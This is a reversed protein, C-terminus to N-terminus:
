ADEGDSTLVHVVHKATDLSKRVMTQAEASFMPFTILDITQQHSEVSRQWWPVHDPTFVINKCPVCTDVGVKWSDGGCLAQEVIFICYGYDHRFMLLPDDSVEARLAEIEVRRAEEGALGRFRENSRLIASGLQGGLRDSSLVRDLADFDEDSEADLVDQVLSEDWFAYHETMQLSVHGFHNKLALLGTSDKRAIFRAFTKRFQHSSFVWGVIGHNRAFTNVRINHSGRSLAEASGDRRGWQEVFLWDSKLDDVARLSELIEIARRIPNEPGDWGAVWQWDAGELDRATKFIVGHILLLKLGDRDTKFAELCGSRLSGLESVRQGVFGGVIIFCAAELQGVLFRLERLSQVASINLVDFSPAVRALRRSEIRAEKWGCHSRASSSRAKSRRYGKAVAAYLALLYSAKDKDTVWSLAHRFLETAIEDPIAETSDSDWDATEVKLLELILVPDGAPQSAIRDSLSLLVQLPRLLQKRHSVSLTKDELAGEPAINNRSRRSLGTTVLADRTNVHACYSKIDSVSLADFGFLNKAAMWPVLLRLAAAVQGVTSGKANEYMTYNSSLMYYCIAKCSWLWDAHRFDTLNGAAGLDIEWDIRLPRASAPGTDFVWVSEEFQSRESIKKGIFDSHV